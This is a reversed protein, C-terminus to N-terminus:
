ICETCWVVAALDMRVKTAGCCGEKLGVDDGSETERVTCGVECARGSVKRATLNM